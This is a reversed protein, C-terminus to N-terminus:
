EVELRPKRKPDAADVSDSEFNAEPNTVADAPVDMKSTGVFIAGPKIILVKSILDGKVVSQPLLEIQESATISGHVQGAVEVHRAIVPGTIVATPGVLVSAQSSVDGKIQGHVHIAGQNKLSGKLIVETGIITDIQDAAAM